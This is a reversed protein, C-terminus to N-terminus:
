AVKLGKSNKLLLKNNQIFEEHKIKYFYVIEVIKM